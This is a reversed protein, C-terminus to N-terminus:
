RKKTHLLAETQSIQTAKTRKVARKEKLSKGSKKTMTQRPSKDSMAARLYLPRHQDRNGSDVGGRGACAGGRALVATLWTTSFSEFFRVICRGDHGSSAPVLKADSAGKAAREAQAAGRRDSGQDTAGLDHPVYSLFVLEGDSDVDSDPHGCLHNPTILPSTGRRKTV